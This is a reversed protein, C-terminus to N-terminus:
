YLVFEIKEYGGVIEGRRAWVILTNKGVVQSETSIEVRTIRSREPFQWTIEFDYEAVEQETRNEFINLGRRLEGKFKIIWTVYPSDRFGRHGIYATVVKPYARVGNVRVEEEDLFSQMNLCLKHLEERCKRPKELLKAYYGGPDYYDYTLFQHFEGSRSVSFFCSASAPKVCDEARL